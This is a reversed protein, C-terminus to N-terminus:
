IILQKGNLFSEILRNATRRRHSFTHFRPIFDLKLKLSFGIKMLLINLIQRTNQKIIYKYFVQCYITLMDDVLKDHWKM